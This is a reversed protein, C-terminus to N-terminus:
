FFQNIKVEYKKLIERRNDHVHFKLIQDNVIVCEPNKLAKTIEPPMIMLQWAKAMKELFDLFIKKKYIAASDLLSSHINAKLFNQYTKDQNYLLFFNRIWFHFHPDFEDIKVDNLNLHDESIYFSLCIRDQKIKDTPRKNLLKTLGACYLRTLWIRGSTAIVFFDIDSKDRLNYSGFLNALAITKIFPCIKFLATFKRAIKLKRYFYNFRRQRININSARDKLFYLGDEEDIINKNKSLSFIVELLSYKKDINQWIEYATLPYDFLDFFVLVKILLEPLEGEFKLSDAMM